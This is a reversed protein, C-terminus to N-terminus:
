RNSLGISIYIEILVTSYLFQMEDALRYESPRTCPQQPLFRDYLEPNKTNKKWKKLLLPHWSEATHCSMIIVLDYMVSVVQGDTVCFFSSSASQLCTHEVGTKKIPETNSM